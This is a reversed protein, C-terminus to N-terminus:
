RIVRQSWRMAKYLLFPFFLLITKHGSPYWTTNPKSKFAQMLKKQNTTPVDRDYRSLFLRVRSPDANPALLLPDTKIIRKLKEHLEHQTIQYKELQENRWKNVGEEKSYSLIEPIDAGAMVPIFGKIPLVASLMATTIGGMSVGMCVCKERDLLQHYELWEFAQINNTITNHFGSEIAELSGYLMPLRARHIVAVNWRAYKVFFRAITHAIRNGNGGLIPHVILTPARDKRKYYEICVPDDFGAVPVADPLEYQTITHRRKRHHSIKKFNKKDWNPVRYHM